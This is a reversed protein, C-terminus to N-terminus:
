KWMNNQFLVKSSLPVPKEIPRIWKQWNGIWCQWLVLAKQFCFIGTCVYRKDGFFCEHQSVAPYTVLLFLYSGYFFRHLCHKLKIKVFNAHLMCTSDSFSSHDGQRIYTASETWRRLTQSIGVVLTDHLLAALVRFGNFNAPTCWVRWCIEATLLGFNVTNRPYTSATDNNLLTKESQQYMGWSRLYLGVFNHSPALIAIKQMRYKWRTAHLVNWVQM